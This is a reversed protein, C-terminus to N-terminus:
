WLPLDIQRSTKCSLKAIYDEFLLLSWPDFNKRFEVLKSPPFFCGTWKSKLSFEESAKTTFDDFICLEYVFAVHRSATTSTADIVVGIPPIHSTNVLIGLEENIERALTTSLLSLIIKSNTPKDVHGGVVISIKTSLDRRNQRIRRFVCYRQERNRILACPIPQVLDNSKEATARPIWTAQGELCKVIPEAIDWPIFRDYGQVSKRPFTLIENANGVVAAGPHIQNAEM